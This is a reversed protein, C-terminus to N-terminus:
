WVEADEDRDENDDGDDDTDRGNFAMGAFQHMMHQHIYPLLLAPLLDDDEDDDDFFDLGFDSDSFDDSMFSPDEDSDYESDDDDIDFNLKVVESNKGDRQLDLAQDTINFARVELSLPSRGPRERVVNVLQLYMRADVHFSHLGVVLTKLDTLRKVLGVVDIEIDVITDHGPMLISLETLKDLNALSNVNKLNTCGRLRLTKLDKLQSLAPLFGADSQAYWLELFELSNFQPLEQLFKTVNEKDCKIKLKTLKKLALLSKLANVYGYPRETNRGTICLKELDPCNKAIAHLLSSCDGNFPGLSFAKLSKHNSVFSELDCDDCDEDYYRGYKFRELKPFKNEMIMDNEDNEWNIVKLEVLSNCNAFLQKADRIYGDYIHLLKLKGFLSRLKGVLYHDSIDYDQLRLSEVTKSCYRIVLDLVRASMGDFHQELDYSPGITLDTISSGFNILMRRMEHITKLSMDNFVCSKHAKTFIRVAIDKMRTCTEAVSCLDMINLYNLSFIEYLCDDNLHLLYTGTANTLEIPLTVPKGTNNNTQLDLPKEQHWSDAMAVIIEKGNITHSRCQLAKSAAEPKAFTVFGFGNAKKHVRVNQVKGYKIFYNLLHERTVEKGLSKVYLTTVVFGDDTYEIKPKYPRNSKKGSRKRPQRNVTRSPLM